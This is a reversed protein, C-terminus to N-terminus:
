KQRIAEWMLRLSKQHDMIQIRVRKGKIPLRVLTLKRLLSLSKKGRWNQGRIPHLPIIRMTQRYDSQLQIEPGLIHVTVIILVGVIHRSQIVLIMLSNMDGIMRIGFLGLRALIM